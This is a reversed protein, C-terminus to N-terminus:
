HCGIFPQIKNVGWHYYVHTGCRSPSGLTASLNVKYPRYTLEHSLPVTVASLFNHTAILPLSTWSTSSWESWLSCPHFTILNQTESSKDAECCNSDRRCGGNSRQYQTLDSSWGALMAWASTLLSSEPGGSGGVDAKGHSGWPVPKHPPAALWSLAPSWPMKPESHQRILATGEIQPQLNVEILLFQM